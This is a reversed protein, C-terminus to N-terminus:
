TTLLLRLSPIHLQLPNQRTIIGHVTMFLWQRLTYEYDSIIVSVLFTIHILKVLTQMRTFILKCSVVIVIVPSKRM